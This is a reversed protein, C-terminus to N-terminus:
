IGINTEFCDIQEQHDNIHQKLDLFVKMDVFVEFLDSVKQSENM